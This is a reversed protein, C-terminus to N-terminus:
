DHNVEMPSSTFHKQISLLRTTREDESEASLFAPCAPTAPGVTIMRHPCVTTEWHEFKQVNKEKVYFCRKCQMISAESNITINEQLKYSVYAFFLTWSIGSLRVEGNLIRTVPIPTLGCWDHPESLILVPPFGRLIPPSPFLVHEGTATLGRERTGFHIPENTHPSLLVDAVPAIFFTWGERGRLM